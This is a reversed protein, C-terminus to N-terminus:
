LTQVMGVQVPDSTQTKGAMILGHEVGMRTLALSIQRVIEKRHATIVVRSGKAIASLVISSFIVTKGGGTSLVFPVRRNGLSFAARIDNVAKEQYWRLVIPGM